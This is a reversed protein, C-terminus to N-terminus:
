KSYLLLFWAYKKGSFWRAALQERAARIDRTQGDAIRVRLTATNEGEDISELKVQALVDVKGDAARDCVRIFYDRASLDKLKRATLGLRQATATLMDADLVKLQLLEQDIAAHDPTGLLDYIAGGDGDAVARTFQEWCAQPSDPGRTRQDPNDKCGPCLAVALILAAAGARWLRAALRFTPSNAQTRVISRRGTV